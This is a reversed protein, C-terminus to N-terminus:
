AAPLFGKTTRRLIQSYKKGDRAHRRGFFNVALLFELIGSYFFNTAGTKILFFRHVKMM